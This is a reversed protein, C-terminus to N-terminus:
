RRLAVAMAPRVASTHIREEDRVASGCQGALSTFSRARPMLRQENSTEIIPCCPAVCCSDCDGVVKCGCATVNGCRICCTDPTFGRSSPFSIRQVRPQPAPAQRVGEVVLGVAPMSRLAVPVGARASVTEVARLAGEGGETGRYVTVRFTGQVENVIVPVIEFTGTGHFTVRFGQGELVSGQFSRNEREANVHLDIIKTRDVRQALAPVQALASAVLVLTGMLWSRRM